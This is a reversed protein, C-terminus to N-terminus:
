QCEQAEIAEILPLHESAFDYEAKLEVDIWINLANIFEEKTTPLPEWEIVFALQDHPPLLNKKINPKRDSPDELKGSNVLAQIEHRLIPANM